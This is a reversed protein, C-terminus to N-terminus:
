SSIIYFVRSQNIEKQNVFTKLYLCCDNTRRKPHRIHRKRAGNEYWAKNHTQNSIKRKFGTLGYYPAVLLTRNPLLLSTFKLVM